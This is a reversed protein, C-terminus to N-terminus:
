DLHACENLGGLFNYLPASIYLKIVHKLTTWM